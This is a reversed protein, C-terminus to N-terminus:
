LGVTAAGRAWQEQRVSQMDMTSEALASRSRTRGFELTCLRRSPRAVRQQPACRGSHARITAHAPPLYRSPFLNRTHARAALTLM